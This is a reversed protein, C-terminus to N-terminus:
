NESQSNDQVQNEEVVDEQASEEGSVADEDTICDEDEADCEGSNETEEQNKMYEELNNCQEDETKTSEDCLFEQCDEGAQCTIAPCDIDNSDCLPLTNAKKEILKYYSIREDLNESCESDEAPDCEYIFCKETEPDCDVESKIYYDKLIFFKFFSIVIVIFAVSFFIAFFIKSKKDM